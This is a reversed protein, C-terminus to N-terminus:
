PETTLATFAASSRRSRRTSTPAPRSSGDGIGSALAEEATSSGHRRLDGARPLLWGAGRAAKNGDPGAGPRARGGEHLARRGPHGGPPRVLARAPLGRRVRPRQVVAVSVFTPDRLWTFGEQCDAIWAEITTTRHRADADPRRGRGRHGPRRHAAPRPRRLLVPGRRAARGGARRRAAGRRDRGARGVDVPDPRQPRRAPRADRDRGGTSTSACVEPCLGSRPM